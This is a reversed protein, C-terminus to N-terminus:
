VCEINMRIFYKKRGFTSFDCYKWCIEERDTMTFKSCNFSCKACHIPLLYKANEEAGSTTTILNLITETEKIKLVFGITYTVKGEDKVLKLKFVATIPATLLVYFVPVLKLLEIERDRICM